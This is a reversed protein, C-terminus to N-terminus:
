SISLKDCIGQNKLRKAKLSAASSNRSVPGSLLILLTQTRGLHWLATNGKTDKATVDAGAALIAEILSPSKLGV